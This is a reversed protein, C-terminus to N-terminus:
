YDNARRAWPSQSLHPSGISKENRGFVYSPAFCNQYAPLVLLPFPAHRRLRLSIEKSAPLRTQAHPFPVCGLPRVHREIAQALSRWRNTWPVALPLLTAEVSVPCIAFSVGPSVHGPSSDSRDGCFAKGSVNGHLSVRASVRSGDTLTSFLATVVCLAPLPGVSQVTASPPPSSLQAFACVADSFPIQWRVTALVELVSYCAWGVLVWSM